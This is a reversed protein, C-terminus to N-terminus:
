SGWSWGLEGGQLTPQGKPPLTHSLSLWVPIHASDSQKSLLLATVRTIGSIQDTFEHRCFLSPPCLLAVGTGLLGGLEVQLGLLAPCPCPPCTPCFSCKM